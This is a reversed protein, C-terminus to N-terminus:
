RSSSPPGSGGRDGPAADGREWTANTPNEMVARLLSKVEPSLPGTCNALGDLLRHPKTRRDTTPDAM